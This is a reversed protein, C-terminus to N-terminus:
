EKGLAGKSYSTNQYGFGNGSNVSGMGCLMGYCALGLGKGVLTYTM